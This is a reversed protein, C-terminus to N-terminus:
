DAHDAHDVHDAHDACDASQLQETNQPSDSWLDFFCDKLQICWAHSQLHWPQCQNTIM